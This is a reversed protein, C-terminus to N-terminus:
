IIRNRAVFMGKKVVEMDPPFESIVLGHKNIIEAYLQKNRLPYVRNVGCGLVAVTRGGGEIVGEHAATDIGRAMGSVIVLGAQGLENCLRKTVSVGYLSPARTGVVAFLTDNIFNVKDLDGKVYICIPPDEIAALQPPFIPDNQSIVLVGNRRLLQLETVPDFTERFTHFSEALKAHIVEKLAAVPAHYIQKVDKYKKLLQKFTVPGIGLFYSFVLYYLIDTSM